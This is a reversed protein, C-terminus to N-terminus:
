VTEPVLRIRREERNLVWFLQEASLMMTAAPSPSIALTVCYRSEPTLGLACSEFPYEASYM